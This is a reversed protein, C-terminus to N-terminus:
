QRMQATALTDALDHKDQETTAGIIARTALQRWEDADPWEEVNDMDYLLSIAYTFGQRNDLDIHVEKLEYQALEGHCGRKPLHPEGAKDSLTIFLGFEDSGVSTVTAQAGSDRVLVPVGRTVLLELPMVGMWNM